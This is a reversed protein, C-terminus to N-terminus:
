EREYGVQLSEKSKAWDYESLMAVYKMATAKDSTMIMFPIDFGHWFGEKLPTKNVATQRHENLYKKHEDSFVIGTRKEIEDVSLNGLCISM